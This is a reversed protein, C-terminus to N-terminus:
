RKEPTKIKRLTTEAATRITEDPDKLFHGIEPGTEAADPGISGLAEIAVLRLAYHRDSLMRKLSPVANKAEPGMRGVASAAQRRVFLDPDKFATILAPLAKTADPGIAHLAASAEERVKPDLDLLAEGLAEVSDKASLRRLALAAQRRERVDEAKLQRVWHEVPRSRALKVDKEFDEDRSYPFGGFEKFVEERSDYEGSRVENLLIKCQTNLCKQIQKFFEQGERLGKINKDAFEPISLTYRGSKKDQVAAWTQEETNELGSDANRRTIKIKISEEDDVQPGRKILEIRTVRKWNRWSEGDQRWAEFAEAFTRGRGFKKDLEADLARLSQLVEEWSGILQKNEHHSRDSLLALFAKLDGTKAAAELTCVAEAPSIAGTSAKKEDARTPGIWLAASAM